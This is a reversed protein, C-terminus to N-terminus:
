VYTYVCVCVCEQMCVRACVCKHSSVSCVGEIPGAGYHDVNGDSDADPCTHLDLSLCLWTLVQMCTVAVQGATRCTAATQEKNMM